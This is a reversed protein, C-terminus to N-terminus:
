HSTLVTLHYSLQPELDLYNYALLVNRVWGRGRGTINIM